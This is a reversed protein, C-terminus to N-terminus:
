RAAAPTAPENATPLEVAVELGGDPRPNATATGGQATAVLPAISLGLGARAVSGTRQRRGDGDPRQSPHIRRHSGSAQSRGLRQSRHSTAM